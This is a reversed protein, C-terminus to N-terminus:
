KRGSRRNDFGGNRGRARGGVAIAFDDLTARNDGLDVDQKLLEGITVRRAGRDQPLPPDPIQIFQVVVVGVGDNM